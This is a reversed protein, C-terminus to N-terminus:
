KKEQQFHLLFLANCAVHAAHPHGSEPDIVEGTAIALQHRLMAATYRSKADDLSKWGHAGGYKNFGYTLVGAVALLAEPMGDFLLDVKPKDSDFKLAGPVSPAKGPLPPPPVQHAKPPEMGQQVAPGDVWRTGCVATGKIRPYMPGPHPREVWEVRLVQTDLPTAGHQMLTDKEIGVSWKGSRDPFTWYMIEM